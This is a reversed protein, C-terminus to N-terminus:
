SHRVRRIPAADLEANKARLNALVDDFASGALKPGNGPKDAARRTEAKRRMWNVFAGEPKDPWPQGAIEALWADRLDEADDNPLIRKAQAKLSDTIPLVRAVATKPAIVPAPLPLADQAPEASRRGTIERVAKAIKANPKHTVVLKGADDIALNYGPLENARAMAKLRSRFLRLSSGSGSKQHLRDIGIPWSTRSPGCHKRAIEYVRKELPSLRFYGDHVTLVERGEIARYLWRSIIVEVWELRDAGKSDKGKKMLFGDILSFGTEEREGNPGTPINTIITAGKLRVLAEKIRQYGQGNTRWGLAKLLAHGTFRVRPSTKGQRAGDDMAAVLQSACYILVDQDYVTPLGLMSPIIEVRIEGKPGDIVYSLCRKDPEKTLSFIPHEFAVALGKFALERVDFTFLEMQARADMMGESEIQNRDPSVTHSPKAM